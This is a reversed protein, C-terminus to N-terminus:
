AGTSVASFKANAARLGWVLQVFAINNILPEDGIILWYGVGDVWFMILTTTPLLMDIDNHFSVARGNGTWGRQRQRQVFDAFEAAAACLAEAESESYGVRALCFGDNSALAATRSGSLGAIAHPLYNDLNADTARLPQFVEHLWGKALAESLFMENGEDAALWASRLPADAEAMLTQLRMSINDPVAEAYARLTGIPTLMLYPEVIVDSM